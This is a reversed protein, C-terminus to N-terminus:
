NVPGAASTSCFSSSAHGSLRPARRHRLQLDPKHLGLECRPGSAETRAARRARPASRQAVRSPQLAVSVLVAVIRASLGRPLSEDLPSLHFHEESERRTRRRRPARLAAASPKFRTAQISPFTSNKRDISLTFVRCM